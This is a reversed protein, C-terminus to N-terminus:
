IILFLKYASIKDYSTDESSEQPHAYDQKLLTQNGMLRM